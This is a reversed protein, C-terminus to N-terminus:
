EVVLRQGSFDTIYWVFTHIAYQAKHMSTFISRCDTRGLWALLMEDFRFLKM